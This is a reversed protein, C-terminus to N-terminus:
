KNENMSGPAKFASPPVKASLSKLTASHALRRKALRSQKKLLKGGGKWPRSTDTVQRGNPHISRNNVPM